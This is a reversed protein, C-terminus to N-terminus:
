LIKGARYFGDTMDPTKGMLYDKIVKGIWEPKNLLYSNLSSITLTQSDAKKISIEVTADENQYNFILPDRYLRLYALATSIIGSVEEFGKAKFERAISTVVPHTKTPEKTVLDVWNYTGDPDHVTALMTDLVKYFPAKPDILLNLVGTLSKEKQCYCVHLILGTLLVVASRGWHNMEGKQRPDIIMEAIAKADGVDESGLRVESLPNFACLQTMVM